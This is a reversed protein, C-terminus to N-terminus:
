TARSAGSLINMSGCPPRSYHPRWCGIRLNLAQELRYGSRVRVVQSRRELAGIEQQAVNEGSQPRSM